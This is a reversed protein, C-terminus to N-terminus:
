VHVFLSASIWRRMSPFQPNSFNSLSPAHHRAHTAAAPFRRSSSYIPCSFYRSQTGGLCCVMFCSYCPDMPPQALSDVSQAETLCRRKACGVWCAPCLPKFQHHLISEQLFLDLAPLHVVSLSNYSVGGRLKDPRVFPWGWASGVLDGAGRDPWLVGLDAALYRGRRLGRGHESRSASAPRRHAPRHRAAPDSGTAPRRRRAPDRPGIAPTEPRRAAREGADAAPASRVAPRRRDAAREGGADVAPTRRAAQRSDPQTPRAGPEQRVGRPCRCVPSARSSRGSSSPTNSGSRLDAPKGM